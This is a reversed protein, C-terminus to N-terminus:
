SQVSSVFLQSSLLCYLWCSIQSKNCDSFRLHDLIVDLLLHSGHTSWHGTSVSVCLHSKDSHGKWSARVNVRRLQLATTLIQAMLTCSWAKGSCLIILRFAANLWVPLSYGVDASGVMGWWELRSYHQKTTLCVWRRWPIWLSPSSPRGIRGFLCSSFPMTCWCICLQFCFFM